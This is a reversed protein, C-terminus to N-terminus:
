ILEEDSFSFYGEYSLIIHEIVAIDLLTGGACLM